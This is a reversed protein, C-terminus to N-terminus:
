SPGGILTLIQALLANTEELTAAPLQAALDAIPDPEPPPPIDVALTSPNWQWGGTLLRQAEVESLAAATLGDPLPDAIVTGVSVPQGNNHIMYTTM